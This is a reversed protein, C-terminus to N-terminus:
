IRNMLLIWIKFNQTVTRSIWTQTRYPHKEEIRIWCSSVTINQRNLLVFIQCSKPWAISERGYDHCVCEEDIQCIRIENQCDQLGPFITPGFPQWGNRTFCCLKKYCHLASGGVLRVNEGGATDRIMLLKRRNDEAMAATTSDGSNPQFNCFIM